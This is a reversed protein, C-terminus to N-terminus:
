LDASQDCDKLEVAVDLNIIERLKEASMNLQTGNMEFTTRIRSLDVVDPQTGYYSFGQPKSTSKRATNKVTKPQFPVESAGELIKALAQNYKEQMHMDHEIRPVSIDPHEKNFHSM